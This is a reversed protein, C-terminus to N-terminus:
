QIGVPYRAARNALLLQGTHRALAAVLELPLRQRAQYYAGTHTSCPTLGACLRQVARENVARQCSRDDALVQALFMSLTESPSYLRLRHEPSFEELTGLM